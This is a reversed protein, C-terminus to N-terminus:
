FHDKLERIRAFVEVTTKGIMNITKQLDKSDPRLLPNTKKEIGLTTPITPKYTSRLQDIEVSRSILDVNDPEVTMAFRCNTQTYEHACYVKTDDPWQLIKQLSDWMQRPTGEFLRGCGMAFLTDGVFACRAEAFHYVIHGSTHGPTDYVTAKFNGFEYIDGEGVQIDIGSIRKADARPGVITSKTKEKLELNGGAHDWHHHTNLIHTLKWNKEVLAKEIASVEPTDITATLDNKKDHILFGYNDSLCPFQHIELTSEPKAV